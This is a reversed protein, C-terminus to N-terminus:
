PYTAVCLWMYRPAYSKMTNIVEHVIIISHKAIVYKYSTGFSIYLPKHMTQKSKNTGGSAFQLAQQMGKSLITGMQDFDFIWNSGRSRNETFLQFNASQHGKHSHILDVQNRIQNYHKIFTSM